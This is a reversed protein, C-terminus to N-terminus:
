YAEVQAILEDDTDCACGDENMFPDLNEPIVLECRPCIHVQDCEDCIEAAIGTTPCILM